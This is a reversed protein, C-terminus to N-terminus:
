ISPRHVIVIKSYRLAGLRACAADILDGEDPDFKYVMDVPM